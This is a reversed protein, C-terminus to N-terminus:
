TPTLTFPADTLTDGVRITGGEIISAYVGCNSHSFERQMLGVLDLDRIGKDPDANIAACRETPKLIHLTAGGIRIDKGVLDFEGWPPLHDVLINARFRRSDIMARGAKAALVRLSALNLLSVFGSRSSDMFRFGHPATLVRPAGRLEKAMVDALYMEISARGETTKLDGAAELKGERRISLVHTAADYHTKLQALAPNRMLMLFKFKPQFAPQAPDFGSPGNEIAFLRDGPFYQNAELRVDDLPEPTLGKVPHCALAVVHPQSM